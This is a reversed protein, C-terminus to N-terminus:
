SKAFSSQEEKDWLFIYSIKTRCYRKEVFLEEKSLKQHCRQMSKYNQGRWDFIRAVGINLLQTFVLHHLEM